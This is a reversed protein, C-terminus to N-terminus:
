STIARMAYKCALVGLVSTGLVFGTCFIGCGYAAVNLATLTANHVDYRPNYHFSPRLIILPIVILAGVARAAESALIVVSAYISMMVGLSCFITLALSTIAINRDNRGENEKYSRYAAVCSNQVSEKISFIVDM